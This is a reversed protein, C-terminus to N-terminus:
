KSQGLAEKQSYMYLQLVQEPINFDINQKEIYDKLEEHRAKPFLKLFTKENFFTKERKGIQVEYEKDIHKIVRGGSQERNIFGTGSYTDVSATETVGGYTLPKPAQRSYGVYSVYFRPHAQMVETAKGSTPLFDKGGMKIVAILDLDSFEKEMDQDAKDIFVFRNDLLNYNAPVNFLRGDKYVVLADQFQKFLYSDSTSPQAQCNFTVCVFVFTLILLVKTKM